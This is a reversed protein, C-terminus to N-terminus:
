MNDPTMSPWDRACQRILRLVRAAPLDESAREYSGPLVLLM